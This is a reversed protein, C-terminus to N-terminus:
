QMHRYNKKRKNMLASIIYRHQNKGTRKRAQTHTPQLLDQWRLSDIMDLAVCSKFSRVYKEHCELDINDDEVMRCRFRNVDIKALRKM